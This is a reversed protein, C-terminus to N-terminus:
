QRYHTHRCAWEPYIPVYGYAIDLRCPFTGSGIDGQRWIRISLNDLVQRGGWAGYRSPDELDATVFAFADRHFMLNQGFTTAGGGNVLGHRTVAAGDLIPASVNQYAGGFIPAPKITIVGATTLNVDAAVVFRKLYGLSQKTEPHVEYVDAFTVIDGETFNAATFGDITVSYADGSYANGTGDFFGPSGATTTVLIAAGTTTVLGTTHAPILTNEYCNFGGTRGMVGEVYQQEIAEASQFLGKTDTNFTVTSEPNITATRNMDRPALNESLYRGCTQFQSYTLGSGASTTIIGVYNPVSKYMSMADAEVIATLQSVAPRLINESFKEISFTLEEQGFNLDVGKITALPLTVKREVHNQPVMTNGTRVVYKPPLRVDLSQGIKLEKNAFRDDYQRNTRMIFNSTQHMIAYVERLIVNSTLVNNSV